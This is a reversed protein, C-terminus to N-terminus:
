RDCVLEKQIPKCASYNINQKNTPQQSTPFLNHNVDLEYLHFSPPSQLLYTVQHKVQHVTLDPRFKIIFIYRIYNWVSNRM